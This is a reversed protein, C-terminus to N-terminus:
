FGSGAGRNLAIVQQILGYGPFDAMIIGVRKRQVGALWNYTLNNTGEFSITCADGVCATRPFDPYNNWMPTTEGTSLLPADTAPNSKGSAVFYPFVGTAGSLYNIYLKNENGPITETCIGGLCLYGVL